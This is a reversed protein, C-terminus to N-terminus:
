IRVMAGWPELWHSKVPTALSTGPAGAPCSPSLRTWGAQLRSAGWEGTRQEWRQLSGARLSRLTLLSFPGLTTVTLAREKIKTQMDQRPGQLDGGEKRCALRLQWLRHAALPRLALLSREGKRREAEHPGGGGGM